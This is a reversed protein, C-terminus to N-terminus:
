LICPQLLKKYKQRQGANAHTLNTFISFRDQRQRMQYDSFWRIAM